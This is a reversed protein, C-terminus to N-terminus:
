TWVAPRTITGTADSLQNPFQCGQLLTQPVPRFFNAGVASRLWTHGRPSVVGVKRGLETRVLKLPEKLDFDDSVVIAVEADNKAADLLLYTLEAADFM